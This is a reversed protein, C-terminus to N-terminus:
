TQFYAWIQQWLTGILGGFVILSMAWVFASLWNAIQFTRWPMTTVGAVIPISARLPGSFRGFLVAWVGYKEFFRHGMPIVNPYKSLPWLHAIRERFHYGLTYSVWDGLAAGVAAGVILYKAAEVSGGYYGGLVILVTWFPLVLSIFAMSECFALAGAVYPAWAQNERVFALVKQAWVPLSGVDAAWASGSLGVLLFLAAVIRYM